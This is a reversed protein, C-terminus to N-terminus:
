IAKLFKLLVGGDATRRPAPDPQVFRVPAHDQTERYARAHNHMTAPSGHGLWQTILGVDTGCRLLHMAASHRVSRPSIRRKALEPEHAAAKRVALALRQRISTATMPGGHQNPLMASTPALQPNLYLWRQIDDVTAPWLPVSRRRAKSGLYVRCDGDLVAHAVQLGIIESVTAGTNYLLGLMVHDRQGLWSDDAIGIVALMQEHSLFDPKPRVFRRMPVALSREVAHRPSPDWPAAYKLFARLAALRINCSHVTNRREHQLHDLFSQILEPTFDALTVAEASKMQITQVFEIFLMFADRYSAVTCPSLARHQTLHESFFAQVLAPFSTPPRAIMRSPFMYRLAHM